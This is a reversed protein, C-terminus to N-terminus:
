NPSFGQVLPVREVKAELVTAGHQLARLEPLYRRDDRMWDEVLEHTDKLVRRQVNANHDAIRRVLRRARAAGLQEYEWAERLRRLVYPYDFAMFRRVVRGQDSDVMEAIQEATFASDPEPEADWWFVLEQYGPGTIEFLQHYRNWSVRREPFAAYYLALPGAEPTVEAEYGVWARRATRQELEWPAAVIRPGVTIM